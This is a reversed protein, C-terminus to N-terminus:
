LEEHSTAAKVIEQNSEVMRMGIKPAHYIKLGDVWLRAEGFVAVSGDKEIIERVDFDASILKKDPTVQGRYHWEIDDSISIPEFQPNLINKHLGQELMYFQILQVMAELGLSGPQVPDQFFHAKFFWESKVVDKEAKIYGKGFKGGAPYYSTIRDIM